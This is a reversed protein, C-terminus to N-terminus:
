WSPQEAPSIAFSFTAQITQTERLWIAPLAKLCLTDAMPQFVPRIHIAMPAAPETAPLPFSASQGVRVTACLCTQNPRLLDLYCMALTEPRAPSFCLGAM